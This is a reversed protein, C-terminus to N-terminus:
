GAHAGPRGVYNGHSGLSTVSYGSGKLFTLVDEVSVGFSKLLHPELELVVIPRLRKLIEKMGRLVFLEAGEVDIKVLNAREIGYKAVLADLTTCPVSIGTGGNVNAKSLSAMGSNMDANLFLTVPDASDGVATGEVTANHLNSRELNAKVQAVSAPNPEAALVRGSPGVRKAAILTCYGAHAGVDLFVDGPKLVSNILETLSPDWNGEMLITEQILDGFNLKMWLGPQFEFWQAKLFGHKALFAGVHAPLDKGFEMPWARHTNRICSQVFKSLIAM